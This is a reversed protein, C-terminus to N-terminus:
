QLGVIKLRQEDSLGPCNFVAVDITARLLQGLCGIIVANIYCILWTFVASILGCIFAVPLKRSEVHGGVIVFVYVFAATGAIFGIVRTLKSFTVIAKAVSYADSYRNSVNYTEM